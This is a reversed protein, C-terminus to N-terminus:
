THTEAQSLAQHHVGGAGSGRLMSTAVRRWKSFQMVYRGIWLLCCARDYSSIPSRLAAHIYGPLFGVRAILRNTRQSPDCFAQQAAAGAINASADKHIRMFFLPEPIEYYRGLLSLEAFLVKEWGYNARPCRTRRLQESRILGYARTATEAGLLVELFQRHPRRTAPNEVDALAGFAPNPPLHRGRGDIEVTQSHCWVISQDRDLVEVCRALLTPGSVDDDAAWRFYEGRSLDFVRWFNWYSGLNAPERHYRIRADSAAFSRCIKETADTSANDSIILEFDDFTQALLSELSEALFTEGNYVPLGISVRPKELQSATTNM